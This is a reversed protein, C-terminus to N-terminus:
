ACVPNSCSRPFVKCLAEFFIGYHTDTDLLIHKGPMHAMRRDVELPAVQRARRKGAVLRSSVPFSSVLRSSVPFSSVLRPMGGGGRRRGDRGSRRVKLHIALGAFPTPWSRYDLYLPKGEAASPSDAPVFYQATLPGGASTQHFCLNEYMCYGATCTHRALPWSAASLRPLLYAVRSFPGDDDDDAEGVSTDYAGPAARDQLRGGGITYPVLPQNWTPCRSVEARMEATPTGVFTLNPPVGKSAAASGTGLLIREDHMEHVLACGAAEATGLSGTRANHEEAARKMAFFVDEAVGHNESLFKFLGALSDYSGSLESWLREGPWPGSTIATYSGFLYPWAAAHVSRRGLHTTDQELHSHVFAAADNVSWHKVLQAAASRAFGQWPLFALTHAAAPALPLWCGVPLAAGTQM